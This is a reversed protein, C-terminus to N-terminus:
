SVNQMFTPVKNVLWIQGKPTVLTTKNLKVDGYPTHYTSEKIVFYGQDIHVQDPIFDDKGVLPSVEFSELYGQVRDWRVYETGGKNQTFGLGRAVDELNLQVVDENDVYCRVGKISIIELQKSIDNM